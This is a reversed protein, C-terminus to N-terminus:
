SGLTGGPSVSGGPDPGTPVRHVSHYNVPNGDLVECKVTKGADEDQEGKISKLLSQRLEMIHKEIVQMEKIILPFAHLIEDLKKADVDV